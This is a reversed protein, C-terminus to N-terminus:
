GGIAGVVPKVTTPWKAAASREALVETAISARVENYTNIRPLAAAQAVESDPRSRYYNRIANREQWDPKISNAKM